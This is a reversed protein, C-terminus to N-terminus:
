GIEDQLRQYLELLKFSRKLSLERPPNMDLMENIGDIFGVEWDNLRDLHRSCFAVYRRNVESM